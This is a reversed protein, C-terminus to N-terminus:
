RESWSVESRVILLSPIVFTAVSKTNISQNISQHLVGVGAKLHRFSARPTPTGIETTKDMKNHGNLTGLACLSTKQSTTQKETHLQASKLKKVLINQIIICRNRTAHM